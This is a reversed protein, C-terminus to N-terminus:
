PVNEPTNYTVLVELKNIHDVITLTEVITHVRDGFTIGSIEVSPDKISILGGDNFSM